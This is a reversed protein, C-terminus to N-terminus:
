KQVYVDATVLTSVDISQKILQLRSCSGLIGPLAAPVPVCRCPFPYGPCWRRWSGHSANRVCIRRWCIGPWRRSWVGNGTWRDRLDWSRPLPLCIWRGFCNVMLKVNVIEREYFFFFYFFFLPARTASWSGIWVARVSNTWTRTPLCWMPKRRRCWRGWPTSWIVARSSPRSTQVDKQSVILSFFCVFSVNPDDAPCLDSWTVSPRALFIFIYGFFYTPKKKLGVVLQHGSDRTAHVAM